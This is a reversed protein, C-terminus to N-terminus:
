IYDHKYTSPHLWFAQTIFCHISIFTNNPDQRAQKKSQRKTPHRSSSSSQSWLMQSPNTHLERTSNTEAISNHEDPYDDSYSGIYTTSESPYGHASSRAIMTPSGRDKLHDGSPCGDLYSWIYTTSESLYGHASSRATM